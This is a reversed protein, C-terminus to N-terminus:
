GLIVIYGYVLKLTYILYVMFHLLNPHHHYHHHPFLTFLHYLLPSLPSSSSTTSLFVSSPFSYLSIWKNCYCHHYCVILLLLPCYKFGNLNIALPFDIHHHHHHHHHPPPSTDGVVSETLILRIDLWFGSEM